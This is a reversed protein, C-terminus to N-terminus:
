GRRILRLVEAPSPRRAAATCGVRIMDFVHEEEHSFEDAISESDPGV